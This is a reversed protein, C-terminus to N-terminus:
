GTGTLIEGCSDATWTVIEPITNELIHSYVQSLPIKQAMCVMTALALGHSVIMVRGDPYRCAIEDIAAKVRAAVEAVSEGGPPRTEEPNAQRQELIQQYQRVIDKYIKGEWDGQNIERLRNDIQIKINSGAALIEATRIARKLDSAFIADFPKEETLRDALTQAQLVGTENLPVDSQGQYRGEQNWDTQGHRVLWFETM